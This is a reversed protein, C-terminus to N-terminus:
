EETLDVNVEEEKGNKEREIREQEDFEAQLKQAVEEDLKLKDKKSLKKVFEPEIMKAKGKDQIKEQSPQQSSVTPTPAQEQEHIALGKARPRTSAATTPKVSKLEALAQATRAAGATNVVDDKKSDLVGQEAVFVEESALDSVDFMIDDGYRGQTEDVLTIEADKDIDDIKRGHKSADEQDGLSAENSSVIRASRGVKYLRKLKHTRSEGKKELKKFRLKLSTIEQPQATKTNELALVNQQLKTCFEMLEKLKLRNEGSRLTNGRALLPDNSLKSVNESRTQTVIDKMTEQRKPAGGSSTGPSSSENPTEKSQTKDINGSDQEAELGSATTSARVLSDDMEENVAEDAVNDSPVSSKPIQTDKKKPRRSRQKKLPQSTSEIIIPTHHTDTPFVSGKGIEEQDQVVMTLFLPTVRGSFGKGVMKMNGFIKKTHSPTVYISKHTSMGELQKDLFVQVFRLYMLFKGSVNELNKMMSEFIYKSFNSKQNTALCIIVSAMTSVLNMGHLLGMLTLHEFITANPLCDVGEADELHLDRTVTYETIIVKKGDVLAQLKVEENVTKVKITAWLQEICSTYITPNITLAYRTLVKLYRFNRKVAHLHSVKPNVQYRAYACVDENKLLPNQTEMPTSATKVDTFGFKKLIETVYKDQCARLAQHLGYLAKEVKYVRDPFDPDEFGLPQCVYVEEKIKGFLFASNVDIQHVMIDKFSAYAFFLRIAEIRAVPSFFEDYDIREEQTYGQPVLRAKNKIVIGREDKKNRKPNKKHYFALLCAIKFIKITQEKSFQVLCVHEKLNKTMRRTQPTSNLDGIIQDVPHDKHIRTTPIPSVPMFADLNNMDAEAGVDEDDDSYVIDELEPM